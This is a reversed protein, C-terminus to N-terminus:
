KKKKDSVAQFGGYERQLEGMLVTIIQRHVANHQCKEMEQEIWQMSNTRPKGATCHRNHQNRQKGNAGKRAGISPGVWIIEPGVLDFMVRGRRPSISFHPIKVSICDGKILSSFRRVVLKRSM